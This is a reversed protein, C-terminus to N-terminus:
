AASSRRDVPLLDSPDVLGVRDTDTFRFRVRGDQVGEFGVVTGTRGRNKRAAPNMPEVVYEEGANVDVLRTRTGARAEVRMGNPGRVTQKQAAPRGGRLANARAADRKAPSRSSGGKRGTTQAAWGGFLDAIVQPVAMHLDANDWHLGYGSATVRVRRLEEVEMSALQPYRSAPFAFALGDRLGVVIRGQEVDYSAAVARPETEAGVRGAEVAAEFQREFEERNGSTPTWKRAM